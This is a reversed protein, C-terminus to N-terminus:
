VVYKVFEKVIYVDEGLFEMVWGWCFDRVLDFMFLFLVYLGSLYSEKM